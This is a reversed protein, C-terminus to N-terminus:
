FRLESIDGRVNWRITTVAAGTVTVALAENVDDATVNIDWAAAAADAAVVVKTASGGVLTTNNAGDRKIAGTIEWAKVVNNVDDRAVALLKFVFASRLLLLARQGAAGLTIETPTADTTDGYWDLISFSQKCAAAGDASKVLERYRECRSAYGLAIAKDKNLTTALYGIAVGQGAGTAQYGIGVGSTNGNANWGIGVGFSTGAATYGVAVGNSYGAASMGIGVGQGYGGSSTGISVGNSGAKAARGLSVGDSTGATDLPFTLTSACWSGDPLVWMDLTNGAYLDYDIFGGGKPIRLTVGSTANLALAAVTAVVRIIFHKGVRCSAAPPILVYVGTVVVGAGGTNTTDCVILQHKASDPTIFSTFIFPTGSPVLTTVEVGDDNSRLSPFM